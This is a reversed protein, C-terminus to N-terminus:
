TSHKKRCCAEATFYRRNQETRITSTQITTLKPLQRMVLQSVETSRPPFTDSFDPLQGGSDM